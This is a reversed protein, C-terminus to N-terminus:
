KQSKSKKGHFTSATSRNRQLKLLSMEQPLDLILRFSNVKRKVPSYMRSTCFDISDQSFLWEHVPPNFCRLSGHYQQNWLITQRLYFNGAELKGDYTKWERDDFTLEQWNEPAEHAYMWANNGAQFDDYKLNPTCANKAKGSLCIVNSGEVLKLVHKGADPRIARGNVRVTLNELGSADANFILTRVPISFNRITDNWKQFLQPRASKAMTRFKKAIEQQVDDLLQADEPDHCRQKQKM